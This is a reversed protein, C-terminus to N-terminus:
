GNVLQDPVSNANEKNLIMKFSLTHVSVGNNSFPITAESGPVIQAAMRKMQPTSPDGSNPNVYWVRESLFIDQAAIWNKRSLAGTNCSIEIQQEIATSNQRHTDFSEKQVVTEFTEVTSLERDYKNAMVIESDLVQTEVLGMFNFYQVGTATDSIPLVYFKLPTIIPDGIPVGAADSKYVAVTYYEADNYINSEDVGIQVLGIPIRIVRGTNGKPIIDTTYGSDFGTYQVIMRVCMHTAEEIDPEMFYLWDALRKDVYADERNTIFRNKYTNWIDAYNDGFRRGGNFVRIKPTSKIELSNANVGYYEGYRLIVKRVSSAIPSWTANNYAPLDYSDMLSRLIDSIEIHVQSGETPILEPKLYFWPTRTGFFDGEQDDSIMIQMRMFYDESVIPDVGTVLHAITASFGTPAGFSLNNAAPLIGRFNIANTGSRFVDYSDFVAMSRFFPILVDDIWETLTGTVHLCESDDPFSVPQSTPATAVFEIYGSSDGLTWGIGSPATPNSDFIIRLREQTGPLIIAANDVSFLIGHPEKSALHSVSEITSPSSIEIAM